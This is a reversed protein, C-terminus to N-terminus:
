KKLLWMKVVALCERIGCSVVSYFTTSSHAHTLKDFGAFRALRGARFVHYDSTVYAVRYGEGYREDLIEKSNVFNEYTSTAAEEKIIRDASVGVSLLYREMAEAETITEQPGQGGSVVIVLEPNDNYCKVASDLRKRLGVTLRDGRIGSGLVIVADEQSTVTDTTGYSFLAVVCCTLVAMGCWFMVRLTKPIKPVLSNFLIGYLLVVAGIATELLIGVSLNSTVVMIAGNIFLLIGAIIIVARLIKKKM